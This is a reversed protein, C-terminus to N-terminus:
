GKVGIRKGARRRRSEMPDAILPRYIEVRDQASLITDLTKLKGFIGVRMVTVDIEGAVQLIGSQRIAEHITTGASVQLDLLIQRDPRVFCVQIPLINAGDVM